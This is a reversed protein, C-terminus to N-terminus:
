DISVHPPPNVKKLSSVQPWHSKQIRRGPEPPLAFLYSEEKRVAFEWCNHLRLNGERCLLQRPNIGAPIILVCQEVRATCKEHSQSTWEAWDGIEFKETM